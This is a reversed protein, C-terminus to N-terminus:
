SGGADAVVAGSARALEGELWDVLREFPDFGVVRRADAVFNSLANIDYFYVRGDRDDVVYEVGGVEIGAAAMLEEVQARIAPPPTFGEVRLGNDAADAACFTRELAQGGPGVCADAPCLNFGDAPPHVAIGYLYRGGVVEVRVIHGGRPPIYEQVLGVHDVGFDLEGVAAELDEPSDFRRIGAGSGGINPKVVVPFRLGRAAAPAHAPSSVVRSRPRPLGLRDLLELQYAKSVETAWAATGNVVRTGAAEVAELWPTTFFVAPTRGRQWASPSMRNFVLAADVPAEPDLFQEDAHLRVHPVGRRTLEAFLPEFWDPHEYFVALRDSPRPESLSM